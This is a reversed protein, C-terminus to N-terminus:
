LKTFDKKIRIVIENPTDIIEPEFVRTQKGQRYKLVMGNKIVLDSDMMDRDSTNRSIAIM